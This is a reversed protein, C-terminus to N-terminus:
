IIIVYITNKIISKSSWYKKSATFCGLKSSEPKKLTLWFHEKYLVHIVSLAIVFFKKAAWWSISLSYSILIQDDDLVSLPHSDQLLFILALVACPFITLWYYSPSMLLEQLPSPNEAYSTSMFSSHSHLGLIINSSSLCM